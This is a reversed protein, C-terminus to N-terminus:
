EEHDDTDSTSDGSTFTVRPSTSEHAAYAADLEQKTFILPETM